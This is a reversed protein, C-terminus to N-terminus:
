AVEQIQKQEKLLQCIRAATYGVQQGIAAMSLGQKRLEVIEAIVAPSTKARGIHIGAKRARDLGARTREGIRVKEQQALSALVSIIADSFVGLSSLYPESYSHWDVNLSELQSLYQITKRAGERSLRDLSWFLLVDYLRKHALNFVEALGNRGSVGKGGSCNDTIVRFVEWQQTDAYKKLQIIQNETEQEGTSVRGYILVRKM